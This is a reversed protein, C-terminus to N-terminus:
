LEGNEVKTLTKKLLKDLIKIGGYGLIVAIGMRSREETVAIMDCVLPSLYVSMLVGAVFAGVKRYRRKEDSSTYGIIGGTVGGILLVTEIKLDELIEKIM